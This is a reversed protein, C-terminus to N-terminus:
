SFLVCLSFVFGGFLLFCLCFFVGKQMSAFCGRIKPLNNKNKLNCEKIEAFRHKGSFVVFNRAKLLACSKPIVSLLAGKRPGKGFHCKQFWFHWKPNEGTGASAGIKTTNPSKSHACFCSWKGFVSLQLSCARKKYRRFVFLTGGYKRYFAMKILFFRKRWLWGFVSNKQAKKKRFIDKEMKTWRKEKAEDLM